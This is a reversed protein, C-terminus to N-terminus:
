AKPIGVEDPELYDVINTEVVALVIGPKGHLLTSIALADAYSGHFDLMPGGDPLLDPDIMIAWRNGNKENM